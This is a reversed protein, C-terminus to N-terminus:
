AHMWYSLCAVAGRKFYVLCLLIFIYIPLYTFIYKAHLYMYICVESVKLAIELEKLRERKKAEEEIEERAMNEKAENLAEEEARREEEQKRLM